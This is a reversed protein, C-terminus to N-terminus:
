VIFRLVPIIALKIVPVPQPMINRQVSFKPWCFKSLDFGVRLLKTYCVNYSTIRIGPVPPFIDTLKCVAQSGASTQNINFGHKVGFRYTIVEYLM